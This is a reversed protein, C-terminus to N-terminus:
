HDVHSTEQAVITGRTVKAAYVAQDAVEFLEAITKYHENTYGIGISISLPIEISSQIILPTSLVIDHLNKILTAIENYSYPMLIIFEDGGFRIISIDHKPTWDSLTKALLKIADDGISHGYTDNISKFKDIDLVAVTYNKVRQQKALLEEYFNRNKVNTLQDIYIKGEYFQRSQEEIAERRIASIEHTYQTELVNIIIDQYYIVDEYLGFKKLTRVWLTLEQRIYKLQDTQTLSDHFLVKAAHIDGIQAELLAACINYMYRVNEVITINESQTIKHLLKQCMEFDEKLYFLLFAYISHMFLTMKNTTPLQPIMEELQYYLLIGKETSEDELYTLLLNSGVLFILNYHKTQLLDHFLQEFEKPTDGISYEKNFLAQHFRYFYYDEDTGYVKILPNLLFLTTYLKETKSQNIFTRNLWIIGSVYTAYDQHQEASEIVLRFLKEADEYHGNYFLEKSLEFQQAQQQLTFLTMKEKVENAINGFKMTCVLNYTIVLSM